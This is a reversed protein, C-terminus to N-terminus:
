RRSDHSRLKGCLASDTGARASRIRIGAANTHRRLPAKEVTQLPAESAKERRQLRYLSMHGTHLSERDTTDAEAQRRFGRAAAPIPARM